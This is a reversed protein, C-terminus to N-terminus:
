DRPNKKFGPGAPLRFRRCGAPSRRLIGGCAQRRAPTQGPAWPLVRKIMRLSPSPRSERPLALIALIYNQIELVGLPKEPMKPAVGRRKWIVHPCKFTANVGRPQSPKHNKQWPLRWGRKPSFFYLLLILCNGLCFNHFRTTHGKCFVPAPSFMIQCFVMACGILIVPMPKCEPCGTVM